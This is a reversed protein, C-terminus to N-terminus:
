RPLWFIGSHRYRSRVLKILKCDDLVWERCFRRHLFDFIVVSKHKNNIDSGVLWFDLTCNLLQIIDINGFDVCENPLTFIKQLKNNQLYVPISKSPPGCVGLGPWPPTNNEYHLLFIHSFYMNHHPYTICYRLIMNSIKIVALHKLGKSTHDHM